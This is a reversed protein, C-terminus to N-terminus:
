RRSRLGPRDPPRPPALRADADPRGEHRLRHDRRGRDGGPRGIGRDACDLRRDRRRPRAPPARDLNRCRRPAHDRRLHLRHAPCVRDRHRRPHDRRPRADDAGLLLPVVACRARLARRGALAPVRRHSRGHDPRVDDARRVVLRLRAGPVRRARAHALFVGTLGDIGAQPTLESTFSSGWTDGSVLAWLGAAGLALAGAAQLSFGPPSGARRAPVALGGVAIALLGGVVLATM